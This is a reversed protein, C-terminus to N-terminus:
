SIVAMLQFSICLLFYVAMLLLLWLVCCFRQMGWSSDVSGQREKQFVEGSEQGIDRKGLM